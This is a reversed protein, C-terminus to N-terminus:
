LRFSNFQNRRGSSSQNNFAITYLIVCCHLTTNHLSHGALLATLGITVDYGLERYVSREVYSLWKGASITRFTIKFTINKCILCNSKLLPILHFTMKAKELTYKLKWVIFCGSVSWFQCGILWHFNSFLLQKFQCQWYLM